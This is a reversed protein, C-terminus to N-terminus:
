PVKTMPVAPKEAPAAEKRDQTFMVLGMGEPRPQVDAPV